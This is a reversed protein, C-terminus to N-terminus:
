TITMNSRVSLTKTLISNEWICFVQRSDLTPGINIMIDNFHDSCYIIIQPKRGGM